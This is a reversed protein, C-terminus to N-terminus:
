AQQPAEARYGAGRVTAIVTPNDPDVEIKARLRQVHVNVLRTDSQDRHGWVKDLLMERSLVRGVNRAFTVLLEFELPTLDIKTEGRTVEHALLDIRLDGVDLQQEEVETTQMRLRARIRAILEVPEFPKTVYDDAGAELGRVVDETDTMATLMIIPTGSNRRIEECVAIGSKGPLMVDLLVIDPQIAAFMVLAEEGSAATRVAFGEGQLVMSLMESLAPDDDVLLVSPSM